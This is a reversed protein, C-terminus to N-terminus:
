RSAEPITDCFLGNSGIGANNVLVDLKGYEQICTEIMNRCDEPIRVDGQVTVVKNGPTELQEKTELLKERNRGHIVMHAGKRMLAGALVRGLGSSSGTVLVVKGNLHYM